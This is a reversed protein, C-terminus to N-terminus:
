RFLVRRAYDTSVPEQVVNKLFHNTLGWHFNKILELFEFFAVNKNPIM